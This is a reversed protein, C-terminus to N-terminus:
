IKLLKIKENSYDSIESGLVKENVRPVTDVTDVTGLQYDPGVHTQEQKM